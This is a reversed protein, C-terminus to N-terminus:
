RRIVAKSAAALDLNPAAQISPTNLVICWSRAPTVMTNTPYPAAGWTLPKKPLAREVLRSTVPVEHLACAGTAPSKEHM